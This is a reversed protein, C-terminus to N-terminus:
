IASYQGTYAIVNYTVNTAIATFSVFVKQGAKLNMFNFLTSKYVGPVTTTIASGGTVTVSYAIQANAGTADKVWINMISNGPTGTGIEQFDIADIFGNDSGATFLLALSTGDVPNAIISNLTNAVSVNKIVIEPYSGFIPKTNQAM